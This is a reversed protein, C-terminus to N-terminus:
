GADSGPPTPPPAAPPPAPPPVAQAAPPAVAPSPPPPPPGNGWTASPLDAPAPRRSRRLAVLVIVGGLTLAVAAAIGLGAWLALGAREVTDQAAAAAADLDGTALQERARAATADVGLVLKGLGSLPDAAGAAAQSAAVVSETVQLARPLTTSLEQYDAETWATQWAQRLWEPEALGAARTARQVEGATRADDTLTGILTEAEDFEWDSMADRLGQPTLWDGDAADLERYAARAAARDDLERAQKPGTVWTRYTKEAGDVGARDEVLDLFRRWDTVPNGRIEGAPDYASEGRYAASLLDALAADDLSGVLAHAASFSAAYGYNDRDDFRAKPGEQWEVLPFPNRLDSSTTSPRKEAGTRDVARRAVFETLGEYLWRGAIHDPNIWAHTLEHYLLVPDFEEGLVIEDHTHDFWAYGTVSPAVDERIQKLGGPWEHGILESLAPVGVGIQTAIYEAWADDGPFSQIAVTDDGIPVERESVRSPDRASVYSWIGGEETDHDLRWTTRKGETTATFGPATSNFEMQKPMVVEVSVRGPDGWGQVAFAAYGDGARTYGKSRVKSGPITFDVTITRSRGYWLQPFSIEVLRTQADSSRRFTTRLTSGGSRATVKRVEAPVAIQYRNWYYRWYRGGGLNQNPKNNRLTLTVRAKITTSNETVVYRSHSTEGLGEDATATAPFALAIALALVATLRRRPLTRPHHQM